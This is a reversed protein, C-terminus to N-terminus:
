TKKKRLIREKKPPGRREDGARVAEAIEARLKVIGDSHEDLDGEYEFMRQQKM